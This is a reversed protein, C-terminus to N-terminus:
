LQLSLVWPRQRSPRASRHRAQARHGIATWRRWWRRRWRRRWPWWRRGRTRWWRRRGGHAVAVAAVAASVQTDVRPKRARQEAPGLIGLPMAAARLGHAPRAGASPRQGRALGNHGAAVRAPRNGAGAGPRDGGGTAPGGGGGPRNGAQGGGPKLVQEGGRGRFDM